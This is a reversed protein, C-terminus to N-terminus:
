KGTAVFVGDWEEGPPSEAFEKCRQIFVKSPPDDIYVKQVATFHKIADDWKQGRYLELGKHFVAMAKMQQESLEGKRALLEFVRVPKKIGMVQILDLERAEVADKAPEYTYESVATFTGWNKNAGELRAALNVSNGMMTYDFRDASGMNGVVMEGTNLGIRHTLNKGIAEEWTKNLGSEEFQKNLEILQEHCELTVLCARTAHDEYAVPAGFFAIIADGEYKDVTGGYRMITDSMATLYVNLLHVLQEPTLKESISSFRAVDSFFATMVRREGGLKLMDPNDMLQSVVDASLYHRFAGKIFRQDKDSVLFRFLTVGGWVTLVTLVVYVFSTWSRVEMVMYRHAFTYGVVLVVALVTGYINPVRPLAVGLVLGIILILLASFVDNVITLEFYSDTMINDLLTAHVEVGPYAVGVPTTRLDFIGVETAGILVIKDQLTEKPLNHEIIDYVSYHKFTQQPGKYNLMISGDFDPLITKESGIRIEVIDGTEGDAIVTIPANDYYHRLMQLDLSPYIRDGYRMLLHVRRVTGDELDPRMNFFGSLHGGEYIKKINSEVMVGWPIRGKPVRNVVLSIESGAIREASEVLEEETVHSIQDLGTFFFYGLVTNPTKALSRGLKADGDLEVVSKDLYRIFRNAKGSSNFGLESFVKRYEETVRIGEAQEPESFVIDLGITGVEYYDNLADVMEAIRSRPWPWRGYKDVSKTDIVAIVVTDSHPQVERGKMIFDVWKKDMLGLYNGAPDISNYLFMILWIFTILFAVKFGSLAFIKKFM